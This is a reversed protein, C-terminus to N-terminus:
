RVCPFCCKYGPLVAYGGPCCTSDLSVCLDQMGPRCPGGPCCQSWPMCPRGCDICQGDVCKKHIPCCGEGCPAQGPPCVDAGGRMCATRCTNRCEVHGYGLVFGLVWCIVYCWRYCRLDIIEGLPITVLTPRVFVLPLNLGSLIAVASANGALTGYAAQYTNSTRYASVEANFGPMNM